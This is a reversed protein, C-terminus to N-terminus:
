KTKVAAEILDKGIKDQYKDWVTQMKDQFLKREEPTIDIVQLGEKKMIDVFGQEKTNIDKRQLAVSERAADQVIKQYEPTLKAWQKESMLIMIGAWQHRTLTLYKQVKYFSLAYVNGIPNDQGDVTGQQLATFIEGMAMPSTNVGLSKFTDVNIPSDTARIKLGALDAPVRVAKKSNTLQRFGSEYMGLTRIGTKQRFEEYLKTGVPGDSVAYAQEKNAFLFPLYFLDLKNYFVAANTTPILGMDVTGNKMGETVERPSGLTSNPFIKIQIKGNTKEAVIAAMKMAGQHLPQKEDYAHALRLNVVENQAKPAAKETKGCGTLGILAVIVLLYAAFVGWHKREM